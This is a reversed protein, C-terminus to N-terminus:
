ACQQHLEAADLRALVEEPGRNILVEIIDRVWRMDCEKSCVGFDYFSQCLGNCLETCELHATYEPGEYLNAFCSVPIAITTGCEKTRHAFFFLGEYSDTFAAQYGIIQVQEDRILNNLNAWENGCCACKKFSKNMTAGKGRAPHLM